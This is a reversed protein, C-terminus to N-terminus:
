ANGGLADLPNAKAVRRTAILAGAMGLAWIGVAPVAITRLSVDFPVTGAALAVIFSASLVKNSM